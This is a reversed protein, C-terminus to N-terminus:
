QALPVSGGLGFKILDDVDLLEYAVEVRESWALARARKFVAYSDDRVLFSIMERERNMGTLIRGFWDTPRETGIDKLVYGQTEGLPIIAFQGLLTYSLDVRYTDTKVESESLLRLMQVSDGKAQQGIGNLAERTMQRLEGVPVLFMQDHRCEIFVPDKDTAHEMPTPILVKIQTVDMGTLMIIFILCGALCTMLDMFSDLTIPAGRERKAM